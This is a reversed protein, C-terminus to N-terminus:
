GGPLTLPHRPALEAALRALLTESPNSGDFTAGRGKISVISISLREAPLYAMVGGYNNVYPNQVRWDGVLVLGLGYAPGSPSATIPYRAVLRRESRPSLLEGGLLGRAMRSVDAITSTWLQGNGLGWSPSWFTTDEFPGRDEGYAHLVPAPIAATRTIATSDLGLPGLVRRRALRAFPQGTVQELVQGMVLFNTHAYHFCAGPECISPQAFATDLLEQESWIRFPDALLRDEFAQNGQIWDPYGSISHGLMRLTVRDANPYAADPLWKAVTDDLSLRGAQELQLLVTTIAPISMSGIRFHMDTTARVGTMSQGLGASVVRRRGRDVRVVVAELHQERMLDRAIQVVERAEARGPAPAAHAPAAAVTLTVTLAVLAAAPSRRRQARRDPRPLLM